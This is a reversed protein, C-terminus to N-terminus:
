IFYICLLIGFYKIICNIESFYYAIGDVLSLSWLTM